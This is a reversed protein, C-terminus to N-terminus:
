ALRHLIVMSRPNLTWVKHPRASADEPDIYLDRTAVEVSTKNYNALVLNMHRNAFASAVVKEPLPHAFLNTDTIELYAWTGEEVM